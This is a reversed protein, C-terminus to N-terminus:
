HSNLRTQCPAVILINNFYDNIFNLFEIAAHKYFENTIRALGPAKNNKLGRLVTYLKNLWIEEDLFTDSFNPTAYIFANCKGKFYISLIRDM